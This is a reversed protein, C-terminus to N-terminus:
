AGTEKERERERFFFITGNSRQRKRGGSFDVGRGCPREKSGDSCKEQKREGALSM